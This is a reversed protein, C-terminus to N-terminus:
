QHLLSEVLQKLKQLDTYSHTDGQLEVTQYNPQAMHQRLYHQLEQYSATPDHANQIFLTPVALAKLWVDM